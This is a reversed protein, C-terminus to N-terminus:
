SEQKGNSRWATSSRQRSNEARSEHKEIPKWTTSPQQ